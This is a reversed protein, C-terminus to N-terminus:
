RKLYICLTCDKGSVNLILAVEFHAHVHTCTHTHPWALCVNTKRLPSRAGGIKLFMLMVLTQSIYDNFLLFLFVLHVKNSCM